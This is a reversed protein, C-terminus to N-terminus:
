SLRSCFDEYGFTRVIQVTDTAPNYCAISPHQVGNFMTTKVMTYHSMDEFLLRDGPQLPQDFSYDGIVDGSLCSMGGLRYTYPKDGPQSAGRIEPRYPMELVDPMHATASIDLIALDMGNHITDLVTCVLVGTNIAVAEGPELYIDLQYRQKLDRVVDILLQRDYDPQTIHHGGGLNLWKLRPLLDGFKHEMAAVTRQLADAGQECLTHMHLGSIEALLTSDEALHRRLESETIGLRSYPACPDYLAVAGESHEPNIRLGFRPRGQQAAAASLATSRFRQWQQCSNFVVHDSLQLVQALDSRSYAAAFTHVQGGHPDRCFEYRGLRAEHPGSACVGALHARIQPFVAHMAFAKLALLIAAGSQQQVQSLIALNSELAATDVVFCPSPVRSLSLGEVVM